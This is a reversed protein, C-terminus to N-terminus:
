FGRQKNYAKLKGRGIPISVSPPNKSVNLVGGKQECWECIQRVTQLYNNVTNVSLGLQMAIQKPYLGSEYLSWVQYERQTITTTPQM